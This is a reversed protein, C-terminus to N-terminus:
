VLLLVLCQNVVLVGHWVLLLIVVLCVWMLVVRETVVMVCKGLVIM